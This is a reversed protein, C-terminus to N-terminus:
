MCKNVNINRGRPLAVNNLMIRAYHPLVLRTACLHQYILTPSCLCCFPISPEKGQRCLFMIVAIVTIVNSKERFAAAVNFVTMIVRVNCSVFPISIFFLVFFLHVGIFLHIFHVLLFLCVLATKSAIKVTFLDGSAAVAMAM